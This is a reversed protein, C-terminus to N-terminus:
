IEDIRLTCWLLDRRMRGNALSGPVGFSRVESFMGQSVTQFTKFERISSRVFQQFAACLAQEQLTASGFGVRWLGCRTKESLRELSQRIFRSLGRIPTRRATLVTRSDDKEGNEAVSSVSELGM